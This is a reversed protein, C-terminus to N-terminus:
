SAAVFGGDCDMKHAPYSLQYLSQSRAPRDLSRIGTLALNEAHTWDPGPAWGAEQVNPVPDKEPTSRSLRSVSGEDRRLGHDLFLLNIGRSGSHATRSTCFRLAQVFTCKINKCDM